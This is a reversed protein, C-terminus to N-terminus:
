NIGNPSHENRQEDTVQQGVFKWSRFGEFFEIPREQSNNASFTPDRYDTGYYESKRIM